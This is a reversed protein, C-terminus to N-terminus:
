SHCSLCYAGCYGQLGSLSVYLTKAPLTTSSAMFVGRNTNSGSGVYVNRTESVDERLKMQHYDCYRVLWAWMSTKNM